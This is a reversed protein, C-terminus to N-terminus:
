VGDDRKVLELAFTSPHSAVAAIVPAEKGAHTGSADIAPGDARNMRRLGPIDAEKRGGGRGFSGSIPGAQAAPRLGRRKRWGPLSRASGHVTGHAQDAAAGEIISTDVVERRAEADTATMEISEELFVNTRARQPHRAGHAYLAGLSQEVLRRQRHGLDGRARAKGAQAAEIGYEGFDVLPRRACDPSDAKLRWSDSM